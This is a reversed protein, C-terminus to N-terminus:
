RPRRPPVGILHMRQAARERARRRRREDSKSPLPVRDVLYEPVPLRERGDIADLLVQLKYFEEAAEYLKTMRETIQQELAALSLADSGAENAPDDTPDPDPSM